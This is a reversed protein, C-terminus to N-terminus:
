QIFHVQWSRAASKLNGDTKQLLITYAICFIKFHNIGSVEDIVNGVALELRHNMCHWIIANPIVHHIRAAVGSKSGLMVSAGDCAFCILKESLVQLTFGHRELCNM